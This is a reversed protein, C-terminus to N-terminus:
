DLVAASAFVLIATTCLEGSLKVVVEEDEVWHCYPDEKLVIDVRTALM